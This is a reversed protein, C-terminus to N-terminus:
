VHRCCAPSVSKLLRGIQRIPRRKRCLPNWRAPLNRDRLRITQSELLSEIPRPKQRLRTHRSNLAFDCPLLSASPLSLFISSLFILSSPLLPFLCSLPFRISIQSPINKHFVNSRHSQLLSKIPRPKQRLRTHRSNLAFDCPLLSASPLSLFIS